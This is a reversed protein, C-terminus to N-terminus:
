PTRALQQWYPAAAAGLCRQSRTIRAAVDSAKVQIAHRRVSSDTQQAKMLLLQHDFYLRNFDVIGGRRLRSCVPDRLRLRRCSRKGAILAIHAM